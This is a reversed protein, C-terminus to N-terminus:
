LLEFYEEFGKTLTSSDRLAFNQNTLKIKLIRDIRFLRKDNKTKDWCLFYWVPWNLLIIQPEVERESINDKGDKYKMVLTKQHFFAINLDDLISNKPALYSSLVETSALGGVFIRGRLKKILIKQDSPFSDSIRNRISKFNGGLIPTGIAETVALSVLMSIVEENNLLLKTLGWRGRLSIGGGRGKDSDIPHGIERLEALDRMLTRHSISLSQCLSETTWFDESRLRSLILSHRQSKDRLSGKGM